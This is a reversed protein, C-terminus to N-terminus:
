VPASNKSCARSIVLHGAALNRSAILHNEHEHLHQVSRFLQRLSMWASSSSCMRSM